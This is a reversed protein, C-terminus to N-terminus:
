TGKPATTSIPISASDIHNAWHCPKCLWRVELPKTYDAHHAEIAVAASCQDCCSPKAISGAKIHWALKARANVRLRGEPSSRYKRQIERRRARWADDKVVPHKECHQRQYLRARAKMEPRQNNARHWAATCPRCWAQYGRQGRRHFESLPKHVRCLRCMKM